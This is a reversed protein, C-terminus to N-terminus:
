GYGYYGNGNKIEFGEKAMVSLVYDLCKATDIGFPADKSPSKEVTDYRILNKMFEKAELYIDM